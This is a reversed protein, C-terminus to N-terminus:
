GKLQTIVPCCNDTVNLFSPASSCLQFIDEVENLFFVQAMSSGMKPSILIGTVTSFLALSLAGCFDLLPLLKAVVKKSFALILTSTSCLCITLVAKLFGQMTSQICPFPVCSCPSYFGCSEAVLTMWGNQVYFCFFILSLLWSFYLECFCGHGTSQDGQISTAM